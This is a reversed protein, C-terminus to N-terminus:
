VFTVNYIVRNTKRLIINYAQNCRPFGNSIAYITAFKESLTCFFGCLLFGCSDNKHYSNAPFIVMYVDHYNVWVNLEEFVIWFCLQLENQYKVSTFIFDLM